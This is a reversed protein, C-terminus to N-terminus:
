RSKSPASGIYKCEALLSVETVACYFNLTVNLETRERKKIRKKKKKKKKKLNVGMSLLLNM